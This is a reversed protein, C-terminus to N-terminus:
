QVDVMDGITVTEVAAAGARSDSPSSPHGHALADVIVVHYRTTDVYDGLMFRHDESRGAFFTPILVVNDRAASLRGYTRYAVRCDDLTAGSSLRCTGLSAVTPAAPGASAQADLGRVPFAALLIMAAAGRRSLRKIPLM